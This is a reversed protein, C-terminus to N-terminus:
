PCAETTFSETDAGRRCRQSWTASGLRILGDGSRRLELTYRIAGVSDDAVGESTLAFTGSTGDQGLLDGGFERITVYEDPGVSSALQLAFTWPDVAWVPGNEDVYENLGPASVSAADTDVEVSGPWGADTPEIRCSM